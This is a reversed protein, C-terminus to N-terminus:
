LGMPPVIHLFSILPGLFGLFLPLLVLPHVNCSHHGVHGHSSYSTFMFYALHPLGLLSTAIGIPWCPLFLLCYAWRLFLFGLFLPLLGLLGIHCSYCGAPGHSSYSTFILYTPRPLRLFSTILGIALMALLSMSLFLFSLFPCFLTICAWFGVCTERWLLCVNDLVRPLLICHLLPMFPM